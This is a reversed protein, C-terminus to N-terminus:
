KIQTLEDVMKEVHKPGNFLGEHVAMIQHNNDLLYTIRKPINLVPMLAGYSKCVEGNPDSLLEFPLQHDNKFKLHSPIDDRSIGVIPINLDKFVHFNDRFSCVEKTCGKTQDKPYFFILCAQNKFNEGLIFKKGSTSELTFDPAKQGINLAM